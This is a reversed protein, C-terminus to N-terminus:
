AELSVTHPLLRARDASPGVLIEIEGPEFVRTLDAGLFGLEAAPLQLSVTGSQGPQLLIRGFGKLELVPRAVSALRDRAFLFVTEEGERPGVNVLDVLIQLTDSERAREPTVRLNSYRFQGYSLGHGFHIVPENPSDLYKSTYHDTPNAPRGSPRQAFFVPVQGMSRPWSVPTRASPSVKGTLVDAVAHGAEAGPFWAALIADAREFLWPVILPRGSFLVAIVPI